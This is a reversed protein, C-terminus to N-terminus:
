FDPLVWRIRASDIMAMPQGARDLAPRYRVRKNIVMCTQRDLTPDGSSIRVVCEGAKGDVGIRYSATVTGQRNARISAEPYDSSGFFRPVYGQAPQAMRAQDARSFGWLALLGAGCDQLIPTAKGIADLPITLSLVSSELTLQRATALALDEEKEELAYGGVLIMGGDRTPKIELGEQLARGDLALKAGRYGPSVRSLPQDFKFAIQAGRGTPDPAILFTFALTGARYKRLALCQTDGYDVQWPGVATATLPAPPPAAVAAHAEMGVLVVATVLSAVRRM